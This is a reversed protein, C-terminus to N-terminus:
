ADDGSSAPASSVRAVCFARGAYAFCRLNLLCFGISFILPLDVSYIILFASLICM